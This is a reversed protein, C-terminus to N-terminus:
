CRPNNPDVEDGFLDVRVRESPFCMQYLSGADEMNCGFAWGAAGDVETFASTNAAYCQCTTYLACSKYAFHKCAACADDKSAFRHDGSREPLQPGDDEEDLRPQFTSLVGTCFLVWTLM